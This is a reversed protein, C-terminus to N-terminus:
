REDEAGLNNVVFGTEGSADNRFGNEIPTTPDVPTFDNGMVIYRDVDDALRAGYRDTASWIRNNTVRAHQFGGHILVSDVDGDGAANGTVVNNVLTLDRNGTVRIGERRHDVVHNGLVQARFVGGRVDIGRRSEGDDTPGLWSNVVTVMWTNGSVRVQAERAGAITTNSVTRAFGDDRALIGYEFGDDNRITCQNVLVANSQDVMDIGVNTPVINTGHIKIDAAAFVKIAADPFGHDGYRSGHADLTCDLVSVFHSPIGSGGEVGITIGRGHNYASVGRLTTFSADGVRIGTSSESPRQRRDVALHRITVHRSGQDARYDHYIDRDEGSGVHVVTMDRSDAVIRSGNGVGELVVNAVADVRLTETVRYTGVPFFVIGGGAEVADEIAAQIAAADDATGDGEAGYEAVSFYAEPDAGSDDETKASTVGFLATGALGATGAGLLARRTVNSVTPVRGKSDSRGNHSDSDRM